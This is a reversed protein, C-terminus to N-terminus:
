LVKAIVHGNLATCVCMASTSTPKEMPADRARSMYCQLVKAIVHGNLATCICCFSLISRRKLEMLGIYVFLSFFCSVADGLTFM